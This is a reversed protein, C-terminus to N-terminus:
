SWSATTTTRSPAASPCWPHRLTAEAMTAGSCAHWWGSVFGSSCISGSSCANAVGAGRGSVRGSVAQYGALEKELEKVTAERKEAEGRLRDIEKRYEERQDEDFEQADAAEKELQAVRDQLRRVDGAPAGGGGGGSQLLSVRDQLASVEARLERNERSLAESDGGGARVPPPVAPPRADRHSSGEEPLPPRGPMPARLPAPAAGFSRCPITM